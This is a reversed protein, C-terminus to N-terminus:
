VCILHTVMFSYLAAASRALRTPIESREPISRNLFLM